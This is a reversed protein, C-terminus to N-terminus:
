LLLECILLFVQSWTISILFNEDWGQFAWNWSILVSIVGVSAPIHLCNTGQLVWFWMDEFTSSPKWGVFYKGVELGPSMNAEDFSYLFTLYIIYNSNTSYLFVFKWSKKKWFFSFSLYWQMVIASGQYLSNFSFALRCFCGTDLFWPFLVFVLFSFVWHTSDLVEDEIFRGAKCIREFLEGGAAYEM